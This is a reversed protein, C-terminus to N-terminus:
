RVESIGLDQKEKLLEQYFLESILTVSMLQQEAQKTLQLREEDIQSPIWKEFM